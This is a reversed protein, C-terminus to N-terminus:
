REIDHVTIRRQGLDTARHVDRVEFNRSLLDPDRTDTLVLRHTIRIDVADWPLLVRYQVQYILGEGFQDFRDRRAVIPMFSCPGTYVDREVDASVTKTALDLTGPTLEYIRCADEFEAANDERLADVEWPILSGDQFSRSNSM